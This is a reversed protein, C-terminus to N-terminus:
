GTARRAVGDPATPDDDPERPLRHRASLDVMAGRPERCRVRDAYDSQYYEAEIASFFRNYELSDLWLILGTRAAGPRGVRSGPTTASCTGSCSPAASVKTMPVAEIRQIFRDPRPAHPTYELTSGEPVHDVISARAAMRPDQTFRWGVYLSCLVNYGIVAALPAALYKLRIAACLPGIMMLVFPAVPVVFRTELRDFSGLSILLAAPLGFIEVIREIFTWYGIQQSIGGYVPTTVLNFM